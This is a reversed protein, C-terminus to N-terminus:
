AMLAAKVYDVDYELKFRIEQAPAPPTLYVHFALQGAMLSLDSNEEDLFEVRGGYVKEEAQLSNLWINASDMINDILRRTMPKDVKGWFTLIITSAVWAFMRGIPIFYDKVDTNSPYCATVSGWAVYGSMLNMATVIGIDNLYNAENHGLHMVEDNEGAVCSDIQLSKNSPSEYPCGNDADIKAVSCALQTSLRFKRDGLKVAPYCVIQYKSFLNKATKWELVESYHTVETTDVDILARGEFFGSISEAKATMLAAVEAHHSWGPALLLDVVIGFKAFVSNVLELGLNKKTKTDFGGVIDTMQVASPDVATYAIELAEAEAITGSGVIELVLTDGDYFLEYDEDETYGTVEVTDKLAEMPLLIQNDDIIYESAEVKIKHTDKDLVNVLFIPAVSYLQFATYIVECLPYKEWDDSMGMASVAEAYSYCMVPENVTGDVTHVPAAGVAFIIGSNAVVPTSLSTEVQETYVGHNM